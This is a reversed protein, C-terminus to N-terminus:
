ENEEKTTRAASSVDEPLAPADLNESSVDEDSVARESDSPAELTSEAQEDDEYEDASDGGDDPLEAAPLEFWFNVGGEVNEAGCTCGHLEVAAKVIALGLGYSNSTLQRAQDARYFGEFLHGIKDEPIPDSTNFVGVRIRGERREFGVRIVPPEGAYKVANELLNTVIQEVQAYDANVFWEGAPIPEVRVGRKELLIRLNTLVSFFIDELGFVTPKLTVMGSELRSLSLLHNVMGNMRAAQETIIQCYQRQSETVGEEEMTEAYGQILSLPTKFDHSVSAIFDRRQRNTVEERELDRQLLENRQTLLGINEKLQDAMHNVSEALLGIEDGSRVDCRHSFDMVTLRRAVNEIERLPRTVCRSVISTTIGGFVLMAVSLLTIIRAAYEAAVEISVIPTELMLYIDQDLSCFLRIWGKGEGSAHEAPEDFEIYESQQGCADLVGNQVADAIRQKFDYWKQEYGSQSRTYYISSYAEGEGEVTSRKFILVDINHQEIEYITDSLMEDPVTRVALSYTHLEKEKSSRYFSKTLVNGFTAVIVLNLALVLFLALFLKSSVNLGPRIEVIGEEDPNPKPVDKGPRLATIRRASPEQGSM